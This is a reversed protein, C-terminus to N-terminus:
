FPFDDTDDTPIDVMGFPESRKELAKKDPTKFEGNRIKEVAIVDTSETVTYVNGIKSEKEKERFLVGIKKGVLGSENWDWHYGPNSDEVTNIFQKFFKCHQAYKESDECPVNQNVIGHWFKDERSQSKYDRAFFGSFDGECIDVSIELHTGVGSRNGVEKVQKIDCVYGGAPLTEYDGAAQVKDWNAIPKM